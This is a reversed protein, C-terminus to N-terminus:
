LLSPFIFYALRVDKKLGFNLLCLLPFQRGKRGEKSEVKRKGKELQCQRERERDYVCVCM